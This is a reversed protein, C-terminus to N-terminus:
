AVNTPRQTVKYYTTKKRLSHWFVFSVITQDGALLKILEENQTPQSSRYHQGEFACSHEKGDREHYLFHM